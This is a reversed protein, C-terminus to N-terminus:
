VDWTTALAEDMIFCPVYITKAFCSKELRSPSPKRPPHRTEAVLGVLCALAVSVAAFRALM